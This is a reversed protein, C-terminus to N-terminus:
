FKKWNTGASVQSHQHSAKEGKGVVIFRVNGLSGDNEAVYADAAEKVICKNEECENPHLDHSICIWQFKQVTQKLNRLNSMVQQKLEDDKFAVLLPCVKDESDSWRGLRFMNEIDGTELKISFVCQLLNKAFTEDSTKRAAVDETKKKPIMYIIINRKRQELDVDM